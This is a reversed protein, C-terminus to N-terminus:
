AFIIEKKSYRPHHTKLYQSCYGLYFLAIKSSRLFRTRQTNNNTLSIASMQLLLRMIGLYKLSTYPSGVTLPM